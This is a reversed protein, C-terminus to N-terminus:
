QLVGFNDRNDRNDRIFYVKIDTDKALFEQTQTENMVMIATAYADAVTCNSAMVTASLLHNVAPYGTHPNVTHGVRKGNNEVYNRYNGSTAVAIDQLEMIEEAAIAGEKTETPKQIGVRWHSNPARKGSVYLEGGIDVLFNELGQSFLFAAVMDVCYGKAIANFNLQTDPHEKIIRNGLIKIKQYGVTQLAKEIEEKTVEKPSDKGFGWLNVLAGVTFDFAGGTEECVQCSIELLQKLIANLTDTENRNIKSVLSNPNFISATNNLETIISDIQYKTIDNKDAITIHYYAGIGNGEIHTAAPQSTCACFLLSLSVLFCTIPNL